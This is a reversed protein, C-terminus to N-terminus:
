GIQRAYGREIAGVLATLLDNVPTAVGVGDGERAVAGNIADVETRRRRLVDQLMSNVNEATARCVQRTHGVPDPYALAIGKAAAVAAAEQVAGDMVLAAEADEVLAGNPLRTLAGVANIGCNVVLKSWIAATLDDTVETEFGAGRLLAALEEVRESRGGSREGIITPGVGAHRIRGRGLETAGHATTGGIVNRAGFRASLTEVNGLGNQLTVVLTNPGAFAAATEAAAATQHAKVFVFAYDPAAVTAPNTTISIIVHFAGGPAEVHVGEAAIAQAREPHNDVMAVAHGARALVAGFLSGMAGCGIIAINV